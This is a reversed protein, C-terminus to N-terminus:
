ARITPLVRQNCTGNKIRLKRVRTPAHDTCNPLSRALGNQQLINTIANDQYFQEELIPATRIYCSRHFRTDGIFRPCIYYCRCRPSLKPSSIDTIIILLCATESPTTPLNVKISCGLHWCVYRVDLILETTETYLELPTIPTNPSLRQM